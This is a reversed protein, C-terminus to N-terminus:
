NAFLDFSFPLSFLKILKQIEREEKEGKHEKSFFLVLQKCPTM